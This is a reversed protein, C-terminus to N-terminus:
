LWRTCYQETAKKQIGCKVIKVVTMLGGDSVNSGSRILESHWLFTTM